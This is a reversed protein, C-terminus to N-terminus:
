ELPKLLELLEERTWRMEQGSLVGIVKDSIDRKRELLNAIKEELTGRTLIKYVYVTKDQGIRHVRDSAQDEVAPNWWRDFHIVHNAATLNIGHGCAMISCLAVDVQGNNFLDIYKQRNTTSGDLRIYDIKQRQFAIEFLDLTSLFHSFLVVREDSNRIEEIKDMVLDFKESRGKIPDIKKTILAPHDCVQKLKTIAPLIHIYSVQEENLLTNRIHSVYKLM